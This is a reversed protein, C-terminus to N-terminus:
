LNAYLERVYKRFGPSSDESDAIEIMVPLYKGLARAEETNPDIQQGFMADPGVGPGAAAGDTIPVDPMASPAGLGVLSSLDPGGAAPAGNVGAPSAPALPSAAQQQQFEQSSGYSGGTIDQQKPGRDTRASHAGPGSVPAPHSPTRYGGHGDAM